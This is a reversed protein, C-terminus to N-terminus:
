SCYTAPRGVQRCGANRELLGAHITNTPNRLVAVRTMKPNIEQLLELRKESLDESISTLGTINRGPRAFSDIFGAGVPDAVVTMVIPITTTAQRLAIIAPNSQAVILDVKLRVLDAALNPVRDPKGEAFRYEVIINKGEVYGLDHVGQRFADVASSDLSSSGM